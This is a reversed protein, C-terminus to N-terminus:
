PRVRRQWYRHLAAHTTAQRAVLAVDEGSARWGCASCSAREITITQSTISGPQLLTKRYTTGSM